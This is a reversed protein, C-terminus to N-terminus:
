CGPPKNLIIEILQGILLALQALMVALYWGGTAWIGCISVLIGAVTFAWSWWSLGILGNVIAPLLLDANNLTQLIKIVTMASIEQEVIPILERRLFKGLAQMDEMFTSIISKIAYACGLVQLVIAVCQACIQIYWAICPDISKADVEFVDDEIFPKSLTYRYKGGVLECQVIPIVWDAAKAREMGERLRQEFLGRLRAKRAGHPLASTLQDFVDLNYGIADTKSSAVPAFTAAVAHSTARSLRHTPRRRGSASPRTTGIQWFSLQEAVIAQNLGVTVDSIEDASDDDAFQLLCNCPQTSPIGGTLLGNIQSASLSSPTTFFMQLYGPFRPIGGVAQTDGLVLVPLPQSFGKFGTSHVVSGNVSLYLKSGDCNVGVAVWTSSAVQYTGTQAPGGPGVASLGIAVTNMTPVSFGLTLSQSGDSSAVELLTIQNGFLTVIDLYCWIGLSFEGTGIVTGTSVLTANASGDLYLAPTSSVQYPTTAQDTYGITLGSQSADIPPNQTFDIAAVIGTSAKPLVWDPPIYDAVGTSATNWLNFATCQFDSGGITVQASTGIGAPTLQTTDALAGDIHVLVDALGGSAALVVLTLYFWRSVPLGAIDPAWTATGLSVQLAGTDSLALGFGPGATVLNGAAGPEIHLWMGLMFQNSGDLQLGDTLTLIASSESSFVTSLSYPPTSGSVQATPKSTM